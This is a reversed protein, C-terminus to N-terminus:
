RYIELIEDLREASAAIDERAACAVEPIETIEISNLILADQSNYFQVWWVNRTATATIRCNGYGRSLIILQKEGLTEKLFTLDEETHPLLSLNIVHPPYGAGSKLVSENIEPLLPPANFINPGFSEPIAIQDQAVTFVSSLIDQPFSAVEVVDRVLKGNEDTTRVRWAGALVAEQAQAENGAIISVEGEGLIQNVLGLNVPNLAGLDVCNDPRDGDYNKLLVLVQELAAKAADLGATEDAEPISPVSFTMMGSPMKMYDLTGGDEDEPQSGPGVFSGFANIM